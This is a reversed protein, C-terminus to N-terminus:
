VRLSKSLDVPKSTHTYFAFAPPRRRCPGGDDERSPPNSCTARSARGCAEALDAEALPASTVTSAVTVDENQPFSPAGLSKKLRENVQDNLFQKSAKTVLATFQDAPCKEPRRPRSM